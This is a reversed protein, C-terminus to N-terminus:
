DLHGVISVPNRYSTSITAFTQFDKIKSKRGHWINAQIDPYIICCLFVSLQTSKDCYILYEVLNKAHNKLVLWSHSCVANDQLKIKIAFVPHTKELQRKPRIWLIAKCQYLTVIYIYAPGYAPAFYSFINFLQLHTPNPLVVWCYPTQKLYQRYLMCIDIVGSLWQILGLISYQLLPCAANWWVIAFM